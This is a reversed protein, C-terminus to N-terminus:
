IKFIIIMILLYTKIIANKTQLDNKQIFQDTTSIDIQPKNDKLVSVAELLAKSIPSSIEFFGLLIYNSIEAIHQIASFIDEQIFISMFGDNTNLFLKFIKLCSFIGVVRSNRQKFTKFTRLFELIKTARLKTPFM